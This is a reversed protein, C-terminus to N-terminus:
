SMQWFNKTNKRNIIKNMHSKSTTPNCIFPYVFLPYVFATLFCRPPQALSLKLFYKKARVKGGGDRKKKTNWM